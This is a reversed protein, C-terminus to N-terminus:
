QSMEGAPRNIERTTSIPFQTWDHHSTTAATPTTMANPEEPAKVAATDHKRAHNARPGLTADRQGALVDVSRGQLREGRDDATPGPATSAAV